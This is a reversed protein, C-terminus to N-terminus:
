SRIEQIKYSVQRAGESAQEMRESIDNTASRQETMSVVLIQTVENIASIQKGINDIAKVSNDSDAQIMGVQSNIESTATSTQQALKKVEEAVVAFGRGEDGARAAEISANLALLNTKEAIEQILKVVEGIKEARANLEQITSNGNEAEEQALMTMSSTEDVKAGIDELTASLEAAATSIGGIHDEVVTSANAVDTTIQYIKNRNEEELRAKESEADAELRIREITNAKFVEVCKAMMGIEDKRATDIEVDVNGGALSTMDNTLKKLSKNFDVMILIFLILVIVFVPAIHMISQTMLDNEKAYIKDLYIGSAIIIDLPAYYKFYAAKNTVQTSNPKKFAYEVMGEAKAKSIETMEKIYARGQSDKKNIRNTGELKPNAANKLVTGNADYLFLYGLNGDYKMAGVESYFLNRVYEESLGRTQMKEHLDKLRSHAAEVVSISRNVEGQKFTKIEDILLIANSVLMSALMIFLLILLKAKISILRFITM